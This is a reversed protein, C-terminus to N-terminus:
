QIILKSQQRQDNTTVFYIGTNLDSVDIAQVGSTYKSYFVTRGQIDTIEIFSDKNLVVNVHENAPNPYIVLNDQTLENIGITGYGQEPLSPPTAPSWTSYSCGFWDGNSMETGIGINMEWGGVNTGSWTSWFNPAGGTGIEGAVGYNVSNLFGGSLDFVLGYYEADELGNMVDEATVTESDFAYGFAYSSGPMWENFDLVLYVTNEGGPGAIILEINDATFDASDIASIPNFPRRPPWDGYSCGFWDGDEITTGIGANMTWDTLNTGSWTAWYNPDAAIGELNNFIIDNLFDGMDVDLNVDAASIDGLMTAGDTTGTFIYGWAYSVVEGGPSDIFDIVCVASDEGSGIWNQVNSMTYKVSEYAPFPEGPTIAPDFDTYSCGFWEGNSLIEGMGDNAEWGTDATKRWLGWFNPEGNIGSHANYTVEDLFIGDLAIDFKDEDAAIAALAEGGTRMDAEDFLFGFAYCSDDTDDLFDIVIVATDSGAGVYYILDNQTFQANGILAILAVAGTLLIKRM